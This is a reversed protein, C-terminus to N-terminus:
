IQIKFLSRHIVEQMLVDKFKFYQIKFRRLFFEAIYVNCLLLVFDM